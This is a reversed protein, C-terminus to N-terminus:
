ILQSRASGILDRQEAKRLPLYNLKEDNLFLFFQNFYLKFSCDQDFTRPVCPTFRQRLKGNNAVAILYNNKRRM